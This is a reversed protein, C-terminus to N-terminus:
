FLRNDRQLLKKLLFEDKKIDKGESIAKRALAYAKEFQERNTTSPLPFSGIDDILTKM